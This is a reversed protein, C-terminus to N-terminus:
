RNDLTLMNYKKTLRLEEKSLMLSQVFDEDEKQPSSSILVKFSVPMMTRFSLGSLVGTKNDSFELNDVSYLFAQETHNKQNEFTYNSIFAYRTLCGTYLARCKGADSLSPVDYFLVVRMRDQDKTFYYELLSKSVRKARGDYFYMYERYAFAGQEPNVRIDKEETWLLENVTVNLADAIEHLTEIDVAIEGNEYKSVTSKGKHIMGALDEITFKNAQRYRRIQMGAKKKIDTM